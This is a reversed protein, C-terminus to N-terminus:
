SDCPNVVYSTKVKGEQDFSFVKKSLGNTVKFWKRCKIEKGYPIYVSYFDGWIGSDNLIDIQRMQPDVIEESLSLDVKMSLDGVLLELSSLTEVDDDSLDSKATLIYQYEYLTDGKLVVESNGLFYAENSQAAVSLSMLITIIILKM